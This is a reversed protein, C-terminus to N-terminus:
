EHTVSSNSVKKGNVEKDQTSLSSENIFDHIFSLLVENMSKEQLACKAKFRARVESPLYIKVTVDKDDM